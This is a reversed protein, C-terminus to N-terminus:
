DERHVVDDFAVSEKVCGPPWGLMRGTVLRYPVAQVRLDAQFDQGDM